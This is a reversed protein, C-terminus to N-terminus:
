EARWTDESIDTDVFTVEAKQKKDNLNVIIKMDEVVEFGYMYFDYGYLDNYETQFLDITIGTAGDSYEDVSVRSTLIKDNDKMYVYCTNSHTSAIVHIKKKSNKCKDLWDKLTENKMLDDETINYVGVNAGYGYSSSVFDKASFISFAIGGIILVGIIIVSVVVKAGGEKKYTKIPQMYNEPLTNGCKPCTTWGKSVPFECQPCTTTMVTGCHPCMKDDKNINKGCKPCQLDSLPTRCIFYILLGLLFPGFFAIVAWLLPNMNRKKADVFVFGAVVGMVIILIIGVISVGSAVAM